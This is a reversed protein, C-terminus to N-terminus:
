HCKFQNSKIEHREREKKQRQAQTRNPITKPKINNGSIKIVNAKNSMKMTEVRRLLCRRFSLRFCFCDIIHCFPNEVKM